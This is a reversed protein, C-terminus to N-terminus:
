DRWVVFITPVHLNLMRGGRGKTAERGVADGGKLPRTRCRQGGTQGRYPPLPPTRSAFPTSPPPLTTMLFGFISPSSAGHSFGADDDQLLPALLGDDLVVGPHERASDVRVAGVEIADLGAVDDLHPVVPAAEQAEAVPVGARLDAHAQEGPVLVVLDARRPPAHPQRP